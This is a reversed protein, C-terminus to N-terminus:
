RMRSNLGTYVVHVRDGEFGLVAWQKRKYGLKVARARDIGQVLVAAQRRDGLELEVERHVLKSQSLSKLLQQHRREDEEDPQGSPACASLVWATPKLALPLPPLVQGDVHVRAQRWRALEAAPIPM